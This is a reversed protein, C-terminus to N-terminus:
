WALIARSFYFILPSYGLHHLVLHIVSLQSLVRTIRYTFGSISESSTQKHCTQPLFFAVKAVKGGVRGDGGGVLHYGNACLM